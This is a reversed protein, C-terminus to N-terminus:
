NTKARAEEILEAMRRQTLAGPVLTDGIIFAPTGTVGLTQALSRNASIIDSVERRNMDTQLTKTDLGVEAAVQLVAAQDLKGRTRMLANHYELYKGQRMSAIAARAAIVSDEGLIPYEKFVVRVNPDREITTMVTSLSRKCYPCRYDFFEVVTVDAEASGVAFSNKDEFLAPRNAAIVDRQRALTIEKRRAELVEMAEILVEPNKLLYDRIIKEIVEVDETPLQKGSQAMAPLALAGALLLAAGAIALRGLKIIMGSEMNPKGSKGAM